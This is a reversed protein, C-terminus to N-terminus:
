RFTFSLRKIFSFTSSTSATARNRKAEKCEALYHLCPYLHGLAVSREERSSRGLSGIIVDRIQM